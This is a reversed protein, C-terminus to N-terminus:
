FKFVIGIVAAALIFFIPHIKGKKMCLIFVLCLIVPKINIYDSFNNFGFSSWGPANPLVFTVIAVATMAAAIMGTTVPRLFSLVSLVAPHENFKIFFRAVIVTIIFSPLVM